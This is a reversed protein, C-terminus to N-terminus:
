DKLNFYEILNELQEVQVALKRSVEENEQATSTNIEVIDSLQKTGQVLEELHLKQQDSNELLGKAIETTGEVSLVIEELARATRNAMEEGEDVKLLSESVIEDIKDVIESSRNALDRIENAVVAFGRGAEGARASEIAANLALLNTQRAIDGIVKIIESITKSSKSIEDMSILMENMVETGEIAKKKTTISVENTKNAQEMNQTINNLIEETTAIFEEIVSAQETAGQALGNAGDSIREAGKRVEQTAHNINSITGILKNSIEFISEKISIFDGIYTAEIEASFDGKAFRSLVNSIEGIYESLMSAVSDLMNVLMLVEHSNSNIEKSDVNLKGQSIQGMLAVVQEIPAIYRKAFQNIVMISVMMAIICILIGKIVEKAIASNTYAMPYTVVLKWNTGKISETTAYVSEGDANKGKTVKGEPTVIAESYDAGQEEITYYKEGKPNYKDKPHILIREQDDIIFAYGGDTDVLGEITKTLTDITIDAGVVGIFQNGKMIRKSFTIAMKKTSADVYPESIVLNNSAKTSIYWERQTPMFTSSPKWGTSVAYEGAENAMYITSMQPYDKARKGLYGELEEMNEYLNRIEIEAALGGLITAQESLWSSFLEKGLSSVHQVKEESRAKINAKSSFVQILTSGGIVISILVLFEILIYTRLNRIKKDM